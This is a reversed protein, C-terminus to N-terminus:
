DKVANWELDQASTNWRMMIKKARWLEIIVASFAMDEMKDHAKDLEESQIGGANAVLELILRKCEEDTFLELPQNM